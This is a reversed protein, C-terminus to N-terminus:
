PLPVYAPRLPATGGEPIYVLLSTEITRSETEYAIDVVAPGPAAGFVAFRGTAGTVTADPASEGTDDLYCADWVNGASDEIRLEATTVLPVEDEEEVDGLYLRVEGEINETGRALGECGDFATILDDNETSRRAWLVGDPASVDFTGINVTHATPIHDNSSIVLFAPQGAPVTMSFRGSSNSKSQGYKAGDITHVAITAGSIPTVADPGDYVKGVLEVEEIPKPICSALALCLCVRKM